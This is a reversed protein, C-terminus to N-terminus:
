PVPQSSPTLELITLEAPCNVRIPVIGFGLGRSVYGRAPGSVWGSAFRREYRSSTIPPGIWPLMVQGGHTHGSLTLAVSVPVEPLLGPNHSALLCAADAPRGRLAGHLDPRGTVLDDVGALWLDDRVLEGRNVLVMIGAARLLAEFEGIRRFRTRDHNGWVARVGLPARLRGLESMLAVVSGGERQDVIDGGLVILDPAEALTADVWAEVAGVGIWPGHHLDALWGVRLPARLGDLSAHRV